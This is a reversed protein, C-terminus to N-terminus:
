NRGHRSALRRRRMLATGALALSALGLVAPVVVTAHAGGRPRAGAAVLVSPRSGGPDPPLRKGQLQPGSTGSVTPAARHSKHKPRTHKTGEHRHHRRRDRHAHRHGADSRAAQRTPRGTNRGHGQRRGHRPRPTAAQAPSTKEVVKGSYPEKPTPAAQPQVPTTSPLGPAPPASVPLAPGLYQLDGQLRRRRGSLAVEVGVTRGANGLDPMTFMGSVVGDDDADVSDDLVWTGDVDLEYTVTGYVGSITFNVPDGAHASTDSLELSPTAHAVAVSSLFSLTTL